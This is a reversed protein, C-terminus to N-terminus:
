RNVVTFANPDTTRRKDFVSQPGPAPSAPLQNAKVCAAECSRCGICRTTDVLVALMGDSRPAYRAARAKGRGGALAAGSTAGIIKLFTRRKIKM